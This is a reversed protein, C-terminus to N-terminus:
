SKVPGPNPWVADIMSRVLDDASGYTYTVDAIKVTPTDDGLLAFRTREVVGALSASLADEITDLDLRTHLDTMDIPGTDDLSRDIAADRRINDLTDGWSLDAGAGAASAERDARRDVIKAYVGLICMGIFGAVLLLMGMTEINM